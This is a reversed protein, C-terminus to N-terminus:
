RNVVLWVVRRNAARNAMFPADRRTVTHENKAPADNGDYLRLLCM